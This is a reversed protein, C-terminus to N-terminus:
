DDDYSRNDFSPKAWDDPLGLDSIIADALPFCNIIIQAEGGAGYRLSMVEETIADSLLTAIRIRLSM